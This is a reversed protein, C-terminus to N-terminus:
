APETRVEDAFLDAPWDLAPLGPSTIPNAHRVVHPPVTLDLWRMVVAQCDPIQHWNQQAFKVIEMNM